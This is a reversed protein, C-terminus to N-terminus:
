VILKKFLSWHKRLNVSSTYDWGKTDVMTYEDPTLELATDILKMGEGINRDKDILLWALNNMRIPNEPELALAQRYFKEAKDLLGAEEYAFAL